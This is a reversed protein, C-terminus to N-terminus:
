ETMHLDGTGSDFHVTGSAFVLDLGMRGTRSGFKQRVRVVKEGVHDALPTGSRIQRVEMRGYEGMDCGEFPGSPETILCWDSGATIHTWAGRDDVLWVDVPGDAVGDYM